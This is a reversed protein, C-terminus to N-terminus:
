RRVPIMLFRWIAVTARGAYQGNLSLARHPASAGNALAAIRLAVATELPVSALRSEITPEDVIRDNTDTNVVQTVGICKTSVGDLVM